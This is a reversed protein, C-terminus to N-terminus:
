SPKAAQLSIIKQELSRYREAMNGYVSEADRNPEAVLTFSGANSVVDSFELADDDKKRSGYFALYAAGLCAANASAKGLTYVSAGFVDALVQIIGPNKSAGGTAFVRGGFSFGLRKAHVRKALFQGEVVARVEVEQSFKAVRDNNKNFKFDGVVPPLIERLDFYTGINGFNGRPTTDLLSAFLDWSAGACQDRVRQRTLSGNKYCLMGMFSKPAVPNVMIHGELAPHAEDLWMLVTDSTGLSVLLDGSNLQFGALSASNDGTFAVVSCNPPFGYRDVFYPSVTGLVKSSPVPAGLKAELQPACAGLCNADWQHTRIDLLNMGSGDSLDISAYHGLFVSAGFSSVLSIRDTNEYADPRTQRLKAIQNGTFREFARSGTIEALRDAGGVAAELSRCQTETSSDMWVPSDRVSFAGQLQDHLFRSPDLKALLESAGRKWYVSGHQQGCGSIASVTSFDLGAVKLRELVMDLAKVWMIPPATVTLNDRNKNVGNQTRYEPLDNDFQVSAECLVELRDNVALAKLQQTSFDFGLYCSARAEPTTMTKSSLM